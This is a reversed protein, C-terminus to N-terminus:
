VVYLNKKRSCFIIFSLVALLSVVCSSDDSCIYIVFMGLELSRKGIDYTCITKWM